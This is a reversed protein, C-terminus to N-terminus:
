PESVSREPQKGRSRLNRPPGVELPALPPAGNGWDVAASAAPALVDTLDPTALLVFSEADYVSNIVVAVSQALARVEDEGVTQGPRLFLSGASLRSVFANLPYGSAGLRLLRTARAVDTTLDAWRLVRDGVFAVGDLRDGRRALDDEVVLTGGGAALARLIHQVVADVDEQSLARSVDDLEPEEPTPRTVVFAIQM